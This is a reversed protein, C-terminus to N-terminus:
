VSLTARVARQWAAYRADRTAVDMAPEFTRELAWAEAFGEM